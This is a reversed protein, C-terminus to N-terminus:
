HDNITSLYNHTSISSLENSAITNNLNYTQIFVIKTKFGNHIRFTFTQRLGFSSFYFMVMNGYCLNM